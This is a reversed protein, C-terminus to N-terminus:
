EHSEPQHETPEKNGSVKKWFRDVAGTFIDNMLMGAALLFFGILIYGIDQLFKM